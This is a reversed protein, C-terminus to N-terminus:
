ICTYVVSFPSFNFNHLSKGCYGKNIMILYSKRPYKIKKQEGNGWCSFFIPKACCGIGNRQTVNVVTSFTPSALEIAELKTCSEKSLQIYSQSAGSSYLIGIVNM